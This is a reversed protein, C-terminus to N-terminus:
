TDRKHHQKALAQRYCAEIEPGVKTIAFTRVLEQQREHLSIALRDDSLIRRLLTGAAVADHPDFLVEPITSLVSAYGPNNGALVVGARAAM